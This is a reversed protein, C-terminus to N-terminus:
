TVVRGPLKAQVETLIRGFVGPGSINALTTADEITVTARDNFPPDSMEVEVAAVLPPGRFVHMTIIKFSQAM